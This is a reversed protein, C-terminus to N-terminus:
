QKIADVLKPLKSDEKGEYVRPSIYTVQGFKNICIDLYSCSEETMLYYLVKYNNLHEVANVIKIGADDCASKIKTFLEQLRANSPAYSYAYDYTERCNILKLVDSSAEGASASVFPRIMGAKNYIADFRYTDGDANSIAYTERYQLHEINQIHYATGELKDVAQWYLAKLSAGQEDYNFPGTPVCECAPFFEMPMNAVPTIATVKAKIAPINHLLHGYMKRSARTAATYSWRLCDKSLGIRGSFDVFTTDWEGGQAKHCTLAYGYKARIANYYPDEMLAHVYESSNPKLGKHRINFNSMLACQEQYTINPQSSNLLSDLIKRRIVSGDEFRLTADRFSLEFSVRKKDESGDSVYVFGTQKEIEDSFDEVEAFEGNLIARDDSSYNNGVIILRDGRQISGERGNFYRQRIQSNYASATRNAYCIIVPGYLSPAPSHDVYKTAIEAIDIDEVEGEKRDLILETREGSQILDRLKISNSLITSDSGQRIVDTLEYYSTKIGRETLYREDLAFSNSDGVPPLQAPDGVFIIKGGDEIRAYTLVDDLLVGTGFVFLDDNAKKSSIMSSEDIIMLSEEPNVCSGPKRNGDLRRIPFRYQIRSEEKEDGEVAEMGSLEYIGKHITTAQYGTKDSLIKAARGTPAMLQSVRKNETALEIIPKILTTKGTGAYGKLVFVSVDGRLFERIAELAEQQQKRYEM